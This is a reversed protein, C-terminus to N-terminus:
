ARISPSPDSGAREVLLSRAEPAVPRRSAELGWLLSHRQREGASARVAEALQAVGEEGLRGLVRAM